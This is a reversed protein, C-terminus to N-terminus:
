GGQSWMTEVLKLDDRIQFFLGLDMELLEQVSARVHPRDPYQIAM